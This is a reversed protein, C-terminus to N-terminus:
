GYPIEKPLEYTIALKQAGGQGVAVAVETTKANKPILGAAKAFRDINNFAVRRARKNSSQNMLELVSANGAIGFYDIPVLARNVLDTKETIQM